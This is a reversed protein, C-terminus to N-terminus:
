ERLRAILQDLHTIRKLILQEQAERIDTKTIPGSRDGVSGSQFCVQRCLANVLWPQGCTQDWIHKVADTLYAQGNEETHQGLPALVEEHSFDGLRLSDASINFASGGTVPEKESSSHVRYDQMDRVGCHIVSHPFSRPRLHYGARLQRLVTLLSHGM